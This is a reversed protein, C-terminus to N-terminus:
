SAEKRARNQEMVREYAEEFFDSDIVNLLEGLNEQIKMEGTYHLTKLQRLDMGNFYMKEFGEAGDTDTGSFSIGNATLRVYKRLGTNDVHVTAEFGEYYGRFTDIYYLNNEGKSLFPACGFGLSSLAGVALIKKLNM